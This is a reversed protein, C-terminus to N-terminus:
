SRRKFLRSWPSREPPPEEPALSPRDKPSNHLRQEYIRVERAADIHRPDRESVFRFEQLASAHRGTRKLFLGRYWHVKISGNAGRLAKTFAVNLAREDAGPKLADLWAVLAIIEGRSPENALALRAEREASELNGRALLSEAKQFALDARLARELAPTSEQADGESLADDYTARAAPDSLVRYAAAVGEFIRTAGDKLDAAEPGLRDPHWHKSLLFFAAQVQRLPADEPIGLTEYHTRPPKELRRRLEDRLAASRVVAPPISAPSPHRRAPPFTTSGSRTAVGAPPESALSPVRPFPPVRFPELDLGVPPASPEGWDLSRTLMLFYLVRHIEAEDGPESAVIEALRRPAGQFLGVLRRADGMFAFHEPPLHPGLGIRRGGLRLLANEIAEEPPHACLGRWLVELTRPALQAAGGWRELLNKGEFYGFHTDHPQGFLWVLQRQLHERLGFGLAQESIRGEVLLLQGLLVHERLVRELLRERDDSSIAGTEVLVDGLHLTAGGLKAKQPAGGDLYIGHRAGGAEELVLTGTLRRDHAQVLLEGFPTTKLTGVTQPVMAAM